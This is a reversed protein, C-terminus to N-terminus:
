KTGIQELAVRAPDYDPAAALAARLARRADDIRGIARFATALNTLYEPDHPSIQVAIRFQAVAESFRNQEGYVAGLNSHLSASFDDAETHVGLAKTFYEASEDLHGDHQWAILGLANLVNADNPNIVVARRLAEEAEKWRGSQTLILGEEGDVEPDEPAAVRVQALTRLARDFDGRAAYISALGEGAIAMELRDPPAESEALSIARLYHAEASVQGASNSPQLAGVMSQVFPANPSGELTHTFLASDDLWVPNRAFTWEASLLVVASLASAAVPLRFRVPLSRVVWATALVTLLCFGVSPLYLYREAFVNRGVAYVNLVPILTVFVWLAAFSALPARRLGCVIAGLALILFLIAAIARPDRFNRVSVFVYYANLYVPALLKWSYASVLNLATLGFESHSLIWNRQRIVLFGLVRLRLLFYFGLVCWYPLSLKLANGIRRMTAGGKGLCFVYAMVILPFVIASEKWLLAAAFAGLSAALFPVHVRRSPKILQPPSTQGRALLFFLFALLFLATFGIEPLAAIWDVAETHIPHVAFLAAAAFAMSMRGTLTHLVALALLVVVVHCALNVAHFARADFGFVDATLRYTLMQLPRYYNSRERVGARTAGWINAAALHLLPAGPRLSPNMVVQEHDDWVFGNSISNAYATISLVCLLAAAGLANTRTTPGSFFRHGETAKAPAETSRSNRKALRGRKENAKM